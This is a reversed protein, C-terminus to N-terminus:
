EKGIEVVQSQYLTFSGSDSDFYVKGDLFSITDVGDIRITGMTDRFVIYM